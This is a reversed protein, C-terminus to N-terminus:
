RLGKAVADGEGVFDIVAEAGNGETLGLVAEVENGDAKIIHEAGCEEALSLALDSRDVAIISAACMAASQIGIHGLGGVGIVVAYQGAASSCGGEQRRSIRDPGRGRLARCRQAGVDATAQGRRTRFDQATGCIWRQFRNGPFAGGAHMDSGRRAALTEGRSLLPHCIVPDGVKLGQVARASRKLGAPM